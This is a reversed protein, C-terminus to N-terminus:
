TKGSIKEECEDAEVITQDVVQSDEAFV